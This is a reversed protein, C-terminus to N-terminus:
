DTGHSGRQPSIYMLAPYTVAALALHMVVLVLVAEPPAGRYLIWADPAMGGLTVVVTLWAFLRRARSSLLTVIPWALAAAAVGPVTLKAYDLLRFHAYGGTAPFVAVGIAVIAACAALSSLISVVAAALFRGLAPQGQGWPFDLRFYDTARHAMSPPTAATVSQPGSWDSM